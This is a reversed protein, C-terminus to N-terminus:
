MISYIATEGIGKAVMNEPSLPTLEPHSAYSDLHPVFSLRLRDRFWPQMPM